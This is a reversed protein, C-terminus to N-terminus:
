NDLLFVKVGQAKATHVRQTKGLADTIGEALMKGSDDEVRYRVHAMAEGTEKNKVVFAENYRELVSPKPLNSGPAGVSGPGALEVASGKFEM